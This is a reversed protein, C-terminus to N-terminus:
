LYNFINRQISHLHHDVTGMAVNGLVKVSVRLVLVSHHAGPESSALSFSLVEDGETLVIGPSDVSELQFLVVEKGQRGPKLRLLLLLPLEGLVLLSFPTISSSM